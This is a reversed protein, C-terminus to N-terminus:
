DTRRLYSTNRPDDAKTFRIGGKTRTVAFSGNPRFFVRGDRYVGQRTRDGLSLVVSANPHVTLGVDDGSLENWGHFDGVLWSPVSAQSDYRRDGQDDDDGYRDGRRAHQEFGDRYGTAFSRESSWDYRDRHRTYDPRWDRDADRSGVQYGADYAARATRGDTRSSATTPSLVRTLEDNMGVCGVSFASAAVVVWFFSRVTKGRSATRM